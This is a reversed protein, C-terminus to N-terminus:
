VNEFRKDDHSPVQLDSGSVKAAIPAPATEIPAKPPVKAKVVSSQPKASIPNPTKKKETKKFAIISNNGITEKKPEHLIHHHHHNTETASSKAVPSTNHGLVVQKLENIINHIKDSENALQSSSNATQNAGTANRQTAEDVQAMAKSVEAVGKAQEESAISIESVMSAVENADREVSEFAQQCNEAKINGTELTVKSDEILKAISQKSSDAITNVKKTSNDLLNTIEKAANGSMDALNGVEEAVVAFGKGHEGARAAEVSANFSLLKTQFVIDNIVKTKSEIENIIKVVEAFERNNKEVQEVISNNSSNIDKIANLMDHIAEKGSSITHKSQEANQLSRKANESNKQIMSNIEDIAAVTEQLASAQEGTSASLSQGSDKMENATTKLLEASKALHDALQILKKSLVQILLAVVVSLLVVGLLSIIFQRITATRVDAMIENKPVDLTLVWPMDAHGLSMPIVVKYVEQKIQASYEQKVKSSNSAIAEAIVKREEGEPLPKLLLENNPHYVYSMNNSIMSAFGSSFVEIVSTMIQLDDVPLDIGVAGLFQGENNVIPTVVSIMTVMKDNVKYEYPNIVTEKGRSKPTLYYDGKGPVDYDRNAEIIVHGEKDNTAYPIFRGTSDHGPTNVWATDNSDFANPEWVTWISVYYKNKEKQLKLLDHIIKRDKVGSNKLSLFTEALKNTHSLASDITDKIMESNKQGLETAYKIASKEAVEINKWSSYAIIVSFILLCTTIVPVILKVRLSKNKFVFVGKYCGRRPSIFLFIVEVLTFM